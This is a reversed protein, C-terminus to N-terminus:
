SVKAEAHNFQIVSNHMQTDFLSFFKTDLLFFDLSFQFNWLYFLYIENVCKKRIM